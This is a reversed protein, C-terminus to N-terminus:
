SPQNRRSSKMSWSSTPLCTKTRYWCPFDCTTSTSSTPFRSRSSFSTIQRLQRFPCRTMYQILRRGDSRSPARGAQDGAPLFVSQDVSFGSHPWSRMNEVVAPELKQEALYLEFVADQWAVLLRQMDFEPLELFEGEAQNDELTVWSAFRACCTGPFRTGPTDPNENLWFTGSDTQTFRDARFFIGSYEGATMGNDRGVGYFSHESLEGQLDQVQKRLAEQVGLIDPGFKNIVNFALGRRDVGRPSVWSNDNNSPDGSDWRINFSM